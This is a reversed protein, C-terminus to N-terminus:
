AHFRAELSEILPRSIGEDFKRAFLAESDWLADFDELDLVKPHMKTNANWDIYHAGHKNSRFYAALDGAREFDETISAAFPSQKVISQFFIEDPILVYKFYSVYDPHEELFQLVYEVCNRTLAWWAAGHYLTIGEYPGRKIRGSLRDKLLGPSDMFWYARVNGCHSHNDQSALRRDVRMFEWSSDLAPQIRTNPKIPFDAGSLLCFRHSHCEANLAASLLALTARVQSFGGWNVKVREDIITVRDDDGLETRFPKEETKRDIHIFFSAEPTRM